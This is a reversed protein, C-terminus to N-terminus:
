FIFSSIDISKRYNSNLHLVLRKLRRAPLLLNDYPTLNLQNVRLSLLQKASSCISTLENMSSRSVTLRRLYPFPRTQWRDMTDIQIQHAYCLVKPYPLRNHDISEISFQCYTSSLKQLSPYIDEWSLNEINIVKLFQLRNFDTIQFRSFFLESQGPTNKDDSLILSIVQNSKIRNCVRDFNSRSILQFHLRYYQYSSLLQEFSSNLDSFAQLIEDALLYDFIMYIMEIPLCDLRNTSM